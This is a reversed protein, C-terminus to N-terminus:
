STMSVFMSNLCSGIFTPVAILLALTVLIMLWTQQYEREQSQLIDCPKQPCPNGAFLVCGDEELKGPELLYNSSKFKEPKCLYQLPTCSGRPKCSEDFLKSGKPRAWALKDSLMLHNPHTREAQPVDGKLIQLLRVSALLLNHNEPIKDWSTCRSRNADPARRLPDDTAGAFLVVYTSNKLLKWWTPRSQFIATRRELESFEFKKNQIDLYSWGRLGSKRPTVDVLNRNAIKQLKRQEFITIFSYVVDRYKVKEGISFPVELDNASILTKVAADGGDPSELAWPIKDERLKSHDKLHAATMQLVISLEPVMFAISRHEDYLIAPTRASREFITAKDVNTSPLQARESRRFVLTTSANVNAFGKASVSLGFPVELKVGVTGGTPKSASPALLSNDFRKSGISVTSHSDYGLFARADRMKLADLCDLQPHNTIMETQCTRIDKKLINDVEDYHWLVADGSMATPMLIKSNGAFAVRDGLMIPYEVGAFSAILPFPAELGCMEDPRQHTTVPVGRALVSRSFLPIWCSGPSTPDPKPLSNPGWLKMRFAGLDTTELFISSVLLQDGLNVRLTSALWAVQEMTQRIYESTGCVEVTAYEANGQTAPYLQLKTWNNADSNLTTEELGPEEKHMVQNISLKLVNLFQREDNWIADIYNGLATACAHDVEGNLTFVSDLDSIDIGEHHLFHLVEWYITCTIVDFEVHTPLEAMMLEVSKSITPFLLPQLRAYIDASSSSTRVMSDLHAIDPLHLELDNIGSPDAPLLTQSIGEMAFSAILSGYVNRLRARYSGSYFQADPLSAEAVELIATTIHSRLSASDLHMMAKLCLTNLREGRFLLQATVRAEACVKALVARDIPAPDSPIRVKSMGTRIAYRPSDVDGKEILSQSSAVRGRQAQQEAAEQLIKIMEEDKNRFACDLATWGNNWGNKEDKSWPNAGLRLLTRAVNPKRNVAAVHLATNGNTDSFPQDPDLRGVSILAEVAEANGLVAALFLPPWWEDKLFAKQQVDAGAELLIAVNEPLNSLIAMHLPTRHHPPGDAANLTGRPSDRLVQKLYATSPAAAAMHLRPLGRDQDEEDNENPSLTTNTTTTSIESRMSIIWGLIRQYGQDEVSKFKVM